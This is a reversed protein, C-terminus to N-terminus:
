QAEGHFAAPAVQGDVASRYPNHRSFPGMVSGARGFVTPPAYQSAYQAGQVNVDADAFQEALGTDERYNGVDGWGSLADAMFHHQQPITARRQTMAEDVRRAIEGEMQAIYRRPIEEEMQVVSPTGQASLM